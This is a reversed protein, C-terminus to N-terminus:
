KSPPSIVVEGRLKSHLQMCFVTADVFMLWRAMRQGISWRTLGHDSVSAKGPDRDETPYNGISSVWGGPCRNVWQADIEETTQGAKPLRSVLNPHERLSGQNTRVSTQRSTELGFMIKYLNIM